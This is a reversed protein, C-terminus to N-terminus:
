SRRLREDIGDPSCNFPGGHAVVCPVRLDAAAEATASAEEVAEPAHLARAHISDIALGRDALRAKLEARHSPELYGSHEPRVGLSLHSFGADGVLCIQREISIEYQFSTAVSIQAKMEM